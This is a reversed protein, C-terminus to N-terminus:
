KKYETFYVKSCPKMLPLTSIALFDCSKMCKRVEFFLRTIFEVRYVVQFVDTSSYHHQVKSVHLRLSFDFSKIYLSNKFNSIRKCKMQRDAM